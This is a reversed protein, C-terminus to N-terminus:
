GPPGRCVPGGRAIALAVGAHLSLWVQEPGALIDRLADSRSKWLRDCCPSAYSRGVGDARRMALGSWPSRERAPSTSSSVCSFRARSVATCRCGTDPLHVEGPDVSPSQGFGLARGRCTSALLTCSRECHRLAPKQRLGTRLRSLFSLFLETHHDSRTTPGQTYTSCLIFEMLCLRFALAWQEFDVRPSVRSRHPRAPHRRHYVVRSRREFNIDYIIDIAIYLYM